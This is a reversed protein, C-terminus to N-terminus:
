SFSLPLFLTCALLLFVSLVLAMILDNEVEFDGATEEVLRQM